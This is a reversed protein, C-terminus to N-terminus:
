CQVPSALPLRAASELMDFRRSVYSLATLLGSSTLGDDRLAPRAIPLAGVRSWRLWGDDDIHSRTRGANDPHLCYPVDLYGRQFAVVLARDLDPDLDLVADIISRAEDRIGTDSVPQGRQSRTAAAAASELASVNEAITPIRHAEAVTKVILRAAGARVALQAAEALLALAGPASRPYVGMYAYVVVHWDIDPLVEGAIDRLASIAEVDQETNTQQAYSLSVSRLGHLRFFLGELVSLAILLSPPCLQGMMCGGFTEVHPIAQPGSSDALRECCRAWIRVTDVLPRRSYPLCYSVPGGETANLGTAMLATFIDSPDASGHRVQVPFGNELLGDLVAATTALDHAVIPYGNLPHGDRLACRASHHDGVRTFSDLTITGVTVARARMTAQLGARMEGPSSMGMRPQVVLQGAHQARSVFEGFSVGGTM